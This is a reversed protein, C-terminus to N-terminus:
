TMHRRGGIDNGLPLRPQKGGCSKGPTPHPSTRGGRADAAHGRSQLNVFRHTRANNEVGPVSGVGHLCSIPFLGKICSAISCCLENISRRQAGSRIEFQLAHGRGKCVAKARPTRDLLLTRQDVTEHTPPTDGLDHRWPSPPAGCSAM